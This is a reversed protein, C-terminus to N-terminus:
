NVPSFISNNFQPEMPVFGLISIPITKFAVPMTISYDQYLRCSIGQNQQPLLHLSYM